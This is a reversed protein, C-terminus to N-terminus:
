SLFAEVRQAVADPTLGMKEALVSAPASAGFDEIGISLGQDGVLREWGFTLGAEV